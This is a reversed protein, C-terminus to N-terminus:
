HTSPLSGDAGVFASQKYTEHDKFTRRMDFSVHDNTRLRWKGDVKEYTQYYYTPTESEEGPGVVEKGTRPYKADRDMWAYIFDATTIGRALTPTAFEIEQGSVIVRCFVRDYCGSRKMVDIFGEWGHVRNSGDGYYFDPAFVDDKLCQWDKQTICRSYRLTIFRIQEMADLKELTSMKKLSDQPTAALYASRATEKDTSATPNIQRNFSEEGQGRTQAMANSSVGFSLAGVVQVAFAALVALSLRLM